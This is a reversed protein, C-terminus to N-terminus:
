SCHWNSAYQQHSSISGGLEQQSNAPPQRWNGVMDVEGHLQRLFHSHAEGLTLLPLSLARPPLWLRKIVCDQLHSNMAGALNQKHSALKGTWGVRLHLARCSPTFLLLQPCQPGDSSSGGIVHLMRHPTQCVSGLLHYHFILPPFSSCGPFKEM